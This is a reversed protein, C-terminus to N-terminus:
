GTAAPPYLPTTGTYLQSNGFTVYSGTKLNLIKYTAPFNNQPDFSNGLVLSNECGKPLHVDIYLAGPAAGDSNVGTQSYTLPMTQVNNGGVQGSLCSALTKGDPSSFSVMEVGDANTTITKIVCNNSVSLPTITGMGNANNDAYDTIVWGNGKGYIYDLENLTTMSNSRTEHGSGMKFADGAASTRKVVGLNNDDYQVRSYPYGTTPVYPEQANNNSYYYGLSGNASNNVANPFDATGALVSSIPKDFDNLSYNNGGANTIFKDKYGLSSQQGIPAPLSQLVKRGYADYMTQTALVNNASIARSQNQIVRGLNDYYTKSEDIIEGNDGYSTSHVYSRDQSYLRIQQLVLLFLITISVPLRNM